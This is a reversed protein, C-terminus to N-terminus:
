IILFTDKICGPTNAYIEKTYARQEDILRESEESIEGVGTVASLYGCRFAFEICLLASPSINSRVVAKRFEEWESAITKM